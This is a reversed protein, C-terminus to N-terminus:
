WAALLANRWILASLLAQLVKCAVILGLLAPSVSRLERWTDGALARLGPLLTILIILALLSFGAVWTMWRRRVGPAAAQPPRDPIHDTVPSADATVRAPSPSSSADM